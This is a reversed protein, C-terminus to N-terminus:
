TYCYSGHLGEGTYVAYNVKKDPFTILDTMNPAILDRLKDNKSLERMYHFLFRTSSVIKGSLMIEQQLRIIRIHLDGLQEGNKFDLTDLDSQVDGNM